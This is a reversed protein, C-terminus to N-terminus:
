VLVRTQVSSQRLLGSLQTLADDLAARDPAVGLSIRVAEPAAAAVTFASGPVIAIGARGAQAAFDQARWRPPLSLWLHHGEPDAAFNERGLAKVALKQRQANEQRIATAIRELTGDGIWRSALAVMLPPAMLSTARLIDALHQAQAEGPATVYAVRLAPTVCKSLTAVHWTIDGAIDAIAPLKREHLPSYPDDELIIVGHRRAIEALAHRREESLTATTPNDMSPIIYLGKPPSTRCAAEFSEPVIGGEDMDLPLLKLGQRAAAAKFGPYTFMGTAVADGPRFEANCIAYLASQAGASIVVRSPSTLNGRGGNLLSAFSRAFSQEPVHRDLWRAAAIRDAEGGASDQYHLRLTGAPESLLAATAEAIARGLDAAQPQPPSNMSLDVPDSPNRGPKEAVPIQERIFTGRGPHADILGRRRAENFARTVTTLDVNLAEAVARQPPLRDGPKIRGNRIDTDLAEVIGLYKLMASEVIRPQWSTM